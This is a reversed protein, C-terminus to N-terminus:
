THVYPKVSYRTQQGQGVRILVFKPNKTDLYNKLIKQLLTPTVSLMYEQNDTESIIYIQYKLTKSNKDKEPRKETNLTLVNEGERPRFYPVGGRERIQEKAQEVVENYLEKWFGTSSSDSQQEVKEDKVTKPMKCVWFLLLM